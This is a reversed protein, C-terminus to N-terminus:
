MRQPDVLEGEPLDALDFKRHPHKFRYLRDNEKWLIVKCQFKFSDDIDDWIEWSDVLHRM